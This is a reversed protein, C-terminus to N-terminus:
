FNCADVVHEGIPSQAEVSTPELALAREFFGAAEAYSEATPSKWLAARGRMLYHLTDPREIPRAAEVGILEANLAVSIRSTIENEVAFLDEAGGDFRDAWLHADTEADILQTDVRFHSGSRRVSGQLVYRVGLERGMQKTDVPKDRYTFATNRSIVFLDAIRSLDSTVDDSIADALYQQERDEGLNAFPLVVISLHAPGAFGTPAPRIWWAIILALVAAAVTAAAGALAIRRRYITARSSSAAPMDAIPAPAVTRVSNAREIRTVPVVLRYGQGAVTQICSGEPRGQDLVRRLASIQITLNANEVPTHPWVARMIEDKSVIVDPQEVLVGLVDLARAGVAVPVFVGREDERLLGGDRRDLRFGEFLFIDATVTV